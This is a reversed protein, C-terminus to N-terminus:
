EHNEGLSQIQTSNLKREKERKGKTGGEREEKRGREENKHKTLM